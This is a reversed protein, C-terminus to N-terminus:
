GALRVFLRELLIGPDTRSGGKMETDAEVLLALIRSAKEFGLRKLYAEGAGVAGSFVGAALLAERLPTGQRARETADAFKRFVYVVGGLVKQPTEGAKLLKELNELAPGPNGDRVADLMAWTTETRWGGVVKNIDDRTITAADGVLSALKAIEQQLMTLGEGALTCILAASEKELVKGWVDKAYKQMWKHLAAGTLEGCELNLGHQDVLKYLKETKRWNKVDLILLAGRAPQAAFKELAARNAKVFEDADEIVVIRRDGFMSVTKLDTMVTKFDAGEGAIKTLSLEAEDGSAGPIRQLIESRFHREPGYMALFAVDPFPKKEALFDIAHM